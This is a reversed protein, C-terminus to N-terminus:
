AIDGGSHVAKRSEFTGAYRWFALIFLLAFIDIDHRYFM